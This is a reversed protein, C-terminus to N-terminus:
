EGRLKQYDTLETARGGIEHHIVHDRKRAEASPAWTESVDDTAADDQHGRLRFPVGCRHCYTDVQKGFSEMPERWWGPAVPMGQRWGQRKIAAFSAAVECFYAVLRGNIQVIAPSWRQNVDCDAIMDYRASEDPELDEMAVMVGGHISHGGNASNAGDSAGWVTACPVDRRAEATWAPNGHCNINYYGYVSNIVAGHGNINNTWLGRKGQDEVVEALDLSIEAFDPHLCPNGGFIGVVGPYGALSEMALRANERTMDESKRYAIMQTCNSCTGLDCRSTIAIQVVGYCATGREDGPAKMSALCQERNMTPGKM